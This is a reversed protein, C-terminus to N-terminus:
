GQGQLWGEFQDMLGQRGFENRAFAQGRQGMADRQAKDLAALQLVREALLDPRGAPCTLGAGSRGIVEAGEGDLMAIVPRGSALYSQVKGPVTLAFIPEPKLSVLLADAGKFFDPMRELPHRGLMFVTQTLGRRQIQERVMAAARGDGVLLWHIDSRERLREAADLVAPLDQAEGLNGAFM